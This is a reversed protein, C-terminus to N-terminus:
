RINESFDTSKEDSEDRDFNENYVTGISRNESLIVNYIKILIAFNVAMNVYLERMPRDKCISMM